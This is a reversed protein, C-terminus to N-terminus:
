KLSRYEELDDLLAEIKEDKLIIPEGINSAQYHIRATFEIMQATEVARSVTDGVAIVGHNQLLCGNYDEALADVAHQGLEESGPLDFDAVPIETGGAFEVLYHSAPIEQGLSAFTTAYPSHTHVIAGVDSREHYIMTHMPTESSPEFDGAIHEGDVTVIPVDEADIRDYPIGSPSIAVRDDNRQSLNGGVGSTLDKAVLERGFTAVATREEGLALQEAMVNKSNLEM